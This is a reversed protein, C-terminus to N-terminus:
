LWRGLLAITLFGAVFGAFSAILAILWGKLSTPLAAKPM